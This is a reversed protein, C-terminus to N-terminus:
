WNQFSLSGSFFDWCRSWKKLFREISPPSSSADTSVSPRGPTAQRAFFAAV